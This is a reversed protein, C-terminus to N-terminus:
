DLLGQKWLWGLKDGYEVMNKIESNDLLRKASTYGDNKEFVIVEHLEVANLLDPSHTSVFIQGNSAYVRFEEALIELIEPYLQNEPEEICLLPSPSPDSLLILYAFMKMTGDSAYKSLFPDKFAGDKFRLVLRDDITSEPIVDVVGPIRSSMKKLIENFKEPHNEYMYKAVQSLNDGTASLRESSVNDQLNVASSIRFDSINWGEIMKRFQAIYPFESFQGLGKIALIDSSDLKQPIREQAKVEERSTPNGKVAIGEGNKFDLMSWLAGYGRDGRKFRLREKAIAPKGSVNSIALEYTVRPEDKGTRFKIEFCINESNKQRSVVEKFGGRVDLAKKVNGNLCDRLFGFVDFFTSKGVGHKGVIITMPSIDTIEVNQLAKYNKIKISEIQMKM